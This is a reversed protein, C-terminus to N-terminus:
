KGKGQLVILAQLEAETLAKNYIRVEDIKGTLFSAWPQSGTASTQSPNTQFQTTGFVINGIDTFSLPGTVGSVTGSSVKGGNIYLGFTSSGADYTVSINIWANFLNPVNDVAYTNDAGNKSVHVRIKGNTNDSGNEFFMEINGWFKTTNTLTFFGIIGTSPPPTNIWETITFSQMNKIANSPTTLVYSNLAGQLAQGKFGATFTTGTATGATKSVEDIYNGDFSWYGVLSGVGIEAISTYGNVTFPPQYSSADYKKYCSPLAIVSGTIFM